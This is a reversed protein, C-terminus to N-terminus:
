NKQKKKNFSFQIRYKDTCLQDNVGGLCQINNISYSLLTFYLENNKNFKISPGIVSARYLTFKLIGKNPEKM